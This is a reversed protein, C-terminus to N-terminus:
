LDPASLPSSAGGTAKAIAARAISVPHDGPFEFPKGPAFDGFREVMKQLAELLDPAAAILRANAPPALCPLGDRTAYAVIQCREAECGIAIFDAGFEIHWPGPTHGAKGKTEAEM